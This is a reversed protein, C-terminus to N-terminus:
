RVWSPQRDKGINRQISARRLQSLGGRDVAARVSGNDTRLDVTGLHPMDPSSAVSRVMGGDRYRPTSANFMGVLGGVNFKPLRMSNIAHMFDVGYHAVADANHVFEFDSLFAPIQDGKPGGQGRILGGTAVEVVNGGGEGGGADASSALRQLASAAADAAADVGSLGSAAETSESELEDLGQVPPLEETPQPGEANALASRITDAIGTFTNTIGSLANTLEPSLPEQTPPKPIKSEDFVPTKDGTPIRTPDLDEPRSSRLKNLTDAGQIAKEFGKQVADALGDAEAPRPRPLPTDPSTPPHTVPFAGDFGRVPRAQGFGAGGLSEVPVGTKREVARAAAALISETIGGGSPGELNRIGNKDIVSGDPFKISGDPFKISGDPARESQQTAPIIKISEVAKKANVGATTAADLSRKSTDELNKIQKKRNEVSDKHNDDTKKLANKQDDTITDATKKSADVLEKQRRKKNESIQKDLNEDAEKKSKAAAAEDRDVKGTVRDFAKGFDGSALDKIAEMSRRITNLIGAISDLILKFPAFVVDLGSLDTGAVANIAKAIAELATAILDLGAGGLNALSKLTDVFPGIANESLAEGFSVFNDKLRVLANDSDELISVFGPGMATAVKAGVLSIDSQLQSLSEKFKKSAELDDEDIGIGLDKVRDQFKQLKDPDALVDIFDQKIAKGFFKAAVAQRLMPEEIAALTKGLSELVQQAKPAPSALDTIDGNLQGLAQSAEGAAGVIGKVINDATADISKLANVDGEVTKKVAEIINTVDNKEATREKRRAENLELGAREVALKANSAALAQDDAERSKKLQADAVAIQASELTARDRARKLSAEQNSTDAGRDRAQSLRVERLRFEADRVANTSKVRADGQDRELNALNDQAKAQSLQAQEVGLAASKLKDSGEESARKIQDWTQTTVTALRRFSAEMQSSSVGGAAFASQLGSVEESTIGLQEALDGVTDVSEAMSRTFEFAAATVLGLSLAIATVAQTAGQLGGIAFAEVIKNGARAGAEGMSDFAANVETSGTLVIRQVIDDAM